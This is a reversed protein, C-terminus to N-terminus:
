IKAIALYEIITHNQDFIPFIHTKIYYLSGDKKRNSLTGHWM